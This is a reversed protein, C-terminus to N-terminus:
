AAEALSPDVIADIYLDTLARAAEREDPDKRALRIAEKMAGVDFNELKAESYIEAIDHGIGQKESELTKIRGFYARLKKKQKPNMTITEGRDLLEANPKGTM